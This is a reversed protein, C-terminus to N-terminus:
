ELPQTLSIFRFDTPVRENIVFQREGFGQLPTVNVYCVTARCGRSEEGGVRLTVRVMGM